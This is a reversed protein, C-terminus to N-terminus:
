GFLTAETKSSFLEIGIVSANLSNRFNSSIGHRLTISNNLDINTSFCKLATFSNKLFSRDSIGDDVSLDFDIPM